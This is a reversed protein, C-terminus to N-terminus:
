PQAWGLPIFLGVMGRYENHGGENPDRVWRADLRIRLGNRFLPGSVAGLGAEKLFVGRDLNDPYFDDYAGGIGALVFPNLFYSQRPNLSYVLDLNLGKQYFDTGGPVGTEFISGHLNVELSLHSLFPHGYIVSGTSGRGTTGLAHAPWAYGGETSISDGPTADAAPGGPVGNDALAGYPLMLLLTGALAAVGAYGCHRRSSMRVDCPMM